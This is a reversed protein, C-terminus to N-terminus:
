NAQSQKSQRSQFHVGTVLTIFPEETPWKVSSSPPATQVLAGGAGAGRSHGPQTGPLRESGRSSGRPRWEKMHTPRFPMLLCFLKENLNLASNLFINSWTLCVINYSQFLNITNKITSLLLMKNLYLICGNLFVQQNTTMNEILILTLTTSM